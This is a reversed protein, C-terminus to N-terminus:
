VAEKNNGIPLKFVTKKLRKHNYPKNRSNHRNSSGSPLKGNLSDKNTKEWIMYALYDFDQYCFTSQRLIKIFSNVCEIKRSSTRFTARSVIGDIRNTVTKTSMTLQSIEVSLYVKSWDEQKNRMLSLNSFSLIASLGEQAKM